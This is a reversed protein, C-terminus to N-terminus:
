RGAPRHRRGRPLQRRLRQARPVPRHRVGLQLLLRAGDSGGRTAFPRNYSIKYARGNAAGQYFDSGGYQTTRRGPRTPPRSCRRRLTNGDDRVIFTIHSAGGTDTRELRAVYVGSVRTPPCTGRRPSRGRAATTCSPPPTRSASRSAQPQPSPRSAGHRDLARRAGPVLRDPLHRHPVDTPLGHRDQLRHASRRRRQHRDRLGPHDPRRRGRHGLRRPRHGAEPERLRDPQRQAGCPSAARGRRSAPCRRVHAALVAVFAAARGCPGRAGWASDIEDRRVAATRLGWARGWVGCGRALPVALGASRLSGVVGHAADGSAAGGTDGRATYVCRRRTCWRSSERTGRPWGRRGGGSPRRRRSAGTRETWGRTDRSLHHALRVALAAAFSRRTRRRRRRAARQEVRHLPEGVGHVRCDRTSWARAPDASMRTTGISHFGDTTQEWALVSARRCGAGRYELRGLGAARLEPTSCSTVACCRTSTARSTASTWACCRRTGDDDIHLTCAATRTPCSSATTTCRRVPRRRQAPHLRAQPGALRLAPAPHRPRRRGGAVAQPPHQRRAGRGPVAASRRAAAPHGRRPDGGSRRCRSGSSCPRCRRIAPARARLVAPNDLYFSTNLSATAGSRRPSLTFRRRIYTDDEDRVFDLDAARASRLVIDAISGTAHGMYYRGLPGDVGGFLGAPASCALCCRTVRSVAWRSCMRTATCSRRPGREARRGGRSRGTM